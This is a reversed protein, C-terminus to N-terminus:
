LYKLFIRYKVYIIFFIPIASNKFIIEMSASPGLRGALWDIKKRKRFKSSDIKDM